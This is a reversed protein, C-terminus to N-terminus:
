SEWLHSWDDDRRADYEGAIFVSLWVFLMTAVTIGWFVYSKWFALHEM